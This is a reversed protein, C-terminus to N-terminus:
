RLCRKGISFEALLVRDTNKDSARLEIDEGIHSVRLATRKLRRLAEGVCEVTAHRPTSWSKVPRRDVRTGRRGARLSAVIDRRRSDSSPLVLAALALVIVVDFRGEM